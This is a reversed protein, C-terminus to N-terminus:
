PVFVGQTALLSNDGATDADGDAGGDLVQVGGLGIVTRGGELAFGPVLADATTSVACTSADLTSATGSCPATFALPFDVVTGEKSGTGGAANQADTIRMPLVVRLEGTYESLDAVHMVNTLQLDLRVDADDPPGGSGVIVAMRVFGTSRSLAPSGDGIGVMLHPSTPQPPACSGFALPPGHTRNPATCAQVAPVLSVRVPTAGKPRMYRAFGPTARSELSTVFNPVDRVYVDTGTEPDEPDLNTARTDFAVLSADDSLFANQSWDNGKTTTAAGSARSVLSTVHTQLDRTFIDSEWEWCCTGPDEGALNSLTQFAVVRGDASLNPNFASETGKAGAIGTARSALTTTGTALDRVYVDNPFDSDAPDLNTANTQFAVTGGDASIAAGGSDDNGKAGGLGNARSVLTTTDDDLDRVYVDYEMDPDDPSLNSAASVFAVRRGDASIGTAASRHNGKAGFPGAARSVLTTTQTQLDRVYVDAYEDEDDPSLNMAESDFAVFRGDASIHPRDAHGHSDVGGAGTARSVLTTDHTLLDRVFIDGGAYSSDTDDPDLNGAHSLFAVFRGDGSLSQGLSLDDGKAGGTGDARSVLTTVGTDLDRVFVETLTDADPADPHLNTAYSYWALFRGDASLVPDASTLNGKNGGAGLGSAPEAAVGVAVIVSLLLTVLRRVRASSSALGATL